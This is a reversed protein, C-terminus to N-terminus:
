KFMRGDVIFVCCNLLRRLPIVFKLVFSCFVKFGCVFFSSQLLLRIILTYVSSKRLLFKVYKQATLFILHHNINIFYAITIM